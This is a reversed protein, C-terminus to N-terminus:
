ANATSVYTVVATGVSVGTVFGSAALSAVGPNSSTTWTGGTSVLLNQQGLCLSPNGTIAAPSAVTVITTRVCGASITYSITVTGGSIAALLGSSPDITARATNSSSWTGGISANSLTISSGSCPSAVGTILAVGTNVTLQAITRCTAANTYTINVTGLTTGGTVIGTINAVTARATNGSTWTCGSIVSGLNLQSGTCVIGSGTYAAPAPNVTVITTLNGGGSFSYTVITTGPSVGTVVGSTGVTAIAGNATSWTGGATANSLNTTAGQCVIRTGTIPTIAATVTVVVTTVTSGCSNTRTYSVTAVGVASGTVLGTSANISAITGSALFWTGGSPTATLVTTTGASLISTGSIVAAVPLPNVTVVKTAPTGCGTNYTIITTGAAVGTLIGSASGISGVSPNSSSWIGGSITNSLTSTVAPCITFTGSIASPTLDILTLKKGPTSQLYSSNSTSLVCRYFTTTTVTPTYTPDTAGVVDFWMSSDLSSQWHYQMVSGSVNTSLVSTFSPCGGSSATANTVLGKVTGILVGNNVLNATPNIDTRLYLLESGVNVTGSTITANNVVSVTTNLLTVESAHDIILDNFTNTGTGNFDVGGAAVVAKILGVGVIQTGSIINITTQGKAGALCFLGLLSVFLKKM